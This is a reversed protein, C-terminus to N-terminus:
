LTFYAIAAGLVMILLKTANFKHGDDAEFLITSAIHLLMGMVIAMSIDLSYGLEVSGAHGMYHGLILGLPAMAAFVLLSIFSKVKSVGSAILLLALTIAVPIKHVMIGWLLSSSEEGHAHHHHHHAHALDMTEYLDGHIVLEIPMGEIFAHVCLSLMIGLPFAKKDDAHFHGHEIGKSMFELLVQIFFGVMVFLGINKISLGEGEISKEYVEPFIHLALVALLFAGSFHLFYRNFRRLREQFFITLFGLVIVPIALVLIAIFDEKM